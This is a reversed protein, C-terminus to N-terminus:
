KKNLFYEAIKDSTFSDIEDLYDGRTSWDVESSKIGVSGLVQAVVLSTSPDKDEDFEDILLDLTTGCNSLYEELVREGEETTAYDYTYGAASYVADLASGVTYLSSEFEVTNDPTVSESPVNGETNNCGACTLLTIAALVVAIHKRM